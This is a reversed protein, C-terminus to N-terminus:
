TINTRNSPGQFPSGVAVALVVAAIAVVEIDAVPAAAAAVVVDSVPFGTTPDCGSSRSPLIRPPRRPLIRSPAKGGRQGRGRVGPRLDAESGM